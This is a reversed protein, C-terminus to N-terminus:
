VHNTIFYWRYINGISDETEHYLEKIVFTDTITCDAETKQFSQKGTLVTRELGKTRVFEENNQTEGFRYDM